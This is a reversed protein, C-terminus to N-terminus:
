QLLKRFGSGPPPHKGVPKFSGRAGGAAGSAPTASRANQKSGCDFEKSETLTEGPVRITQRNNQTCTYNPLRKTYHLAYERIANLATAQEAATQALAVAALCAIAIAAKIGRM